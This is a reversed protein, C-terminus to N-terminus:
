WIKIINKPIQANCILYNDKKEYNIELSDLDRGLINATIRRGIFNITLKKPEFLFGKGLAKLIAEKATWFHYFLSIKDNSKRWFSLEDDNMFILAQQELNDIDRIEEIDIGVLKNLSTAIVFFDNSYSLSINLDSSQIFPRGYGDYSIEAKINYKETLLKNLRYHRSIYNERDSLFKYSSLRKLQDRSLSIDNIYNDEYSFIYYSAM